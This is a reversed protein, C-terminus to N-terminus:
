KEPFHTRILKKFSDFEWLPVFSKNKSMVLYNFTYHDLNCSKMLDVAEQLRGQQIKMQVYYLRTYRKAWWEYPGSMIKKYTIDAKKYEQQSILNLFEWIDMVNNSMPLIVEFYSKTKDPDDGFASFMARHGYLHIGKFGKEEIAETLVNIAETQQENSFYLWGMDYYANTRNLGETLNTEIAQALFQHAPEFEGHILYFWGLRQLNYYNNDYRIYEQFFHNAKEEQGELYFAEGISYYLGPDNKAMKILTDLQSNVAETQNSKLYASFLKLQTNSIFNNPPKLLLFQHYFEIAKHYKDQGLYINGLAFYSYSFTSDQVLAEQYKREALNLRNTAIYVDGLKSYACPFCIGEAASSIVKQYYFEAKDYISQKKYYNAKTYWLAISNTLQSGGVSSGSLKGSRCADTIVITKAKNQTSLTSIIDQFMPLALAGGALYVRSPADWCLLYGPQTITKREVDGHGSFYILVKDNEKVVEMLWDLAIAFQAVTAQENILVKLHDEDLEGGAPSQLFGAFALADKDAFRLDPIDEDQYDSIGVVVAYTTGSDFSLSQTFGFYSLFLLLLTHATKM